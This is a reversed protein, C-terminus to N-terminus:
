KNFILVCNYRRIPVLLTGSEEKIYEDLSEAISLYHEEDLRLQDMIFLIAQNRDKVPQDFDHPIMSCSVKLGAQELRGKVYCGNSCSPSHKPPLGLKKSVALHFSERELTGQTSILGGRRTKAILQNIKETDNAFNNHYIGIAIDWDECDVKPWTSQIIEINGVQQEKMTHALVKLAAADQDIALVKHCLKAFYLSTIGFGCGIDAVVDDTSILARLHDGFPIEPYNGHDCAQKYFEFANDSWFKTM